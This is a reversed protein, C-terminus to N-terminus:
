ASHTVLRVWSIRIPTIADVHDSKRDSLSIACSVLIDEVIVEAWEQLQESSRISPTGAEM